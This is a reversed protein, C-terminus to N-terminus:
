KASTFQVEDLGTVTRHIQQFLTDINNPDVTSLRIPRRGYMFYRFGFRGEVPATLGKVEGEFRTWEQPFAGAPDTEESAFTPNVDVLKLTFDGTNDPSSGVNTSGTPNVWLQIRSVDGGYAYFSIKDGNKITIKPSVLWNSINFLSSAGRLNIVEACAISTAAYGNTARQSFFANKWYRGPFPASPFQNSDLTFQAQEWGPHYVSVYNVSGLNPAEALDYWKAGMPFSKNVSMWGNSLAEQFNDFSETFSADAPPLPRTLNSDDKCSQLLVLALGAFALFKGSLIKRMFTQNQNVGTSKQSAHFYM